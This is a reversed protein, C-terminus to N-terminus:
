DNTGNDTAATKNGSQPRKRDSKNDKQASKPTCEDKNRNAGKKGKIRL